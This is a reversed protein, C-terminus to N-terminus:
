GSVYIQDKPRYWKKQNHIKALLEIIIKKDDDSTETRIQNRLAKEILDIDKIDFNFQKNYM